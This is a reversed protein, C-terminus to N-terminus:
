PKFKEYDDKTDIDRIVSDNDIEVYAIDGTHKQTFSRLTEPEKIDLIEQWFGRAILWPHGRKMKYSPFIIKAKGELYENIVKEITTKQIFPQDGLVIITADCKTETLVRIGAQVSHLMSGDTYLPNHIYSVEKKKLNDEVIERNAGVVVVINEVKAAYVENVVTQIITSNGWPLVMKPKGMRTSMGAALVVAGVVNDM